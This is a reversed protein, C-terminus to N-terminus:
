KKRQHMNTSYHTVHCPTFKNYPYDYPIQILTRSKGKFLQIINTMFIYAYEDGEDVLPSLLARNEEIKAQLLYIVQNFNRFQQYWSKLHMFILYVKSACSSMIFNTEGIIIQGQSFFPFHSALVLKVRMVGQKNRFFLGWFNTELNDLNFYLREFSCIFRLM